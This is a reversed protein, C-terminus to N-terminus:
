QGSSGGSSGPMQITVPSYGGGSSNSLLDKPKGARYREIAAIAPDGEEPGLTRGVVLDHPDAVMLGFDSVTACGFNSGVGNDHAEFPTKTWDPCNPLTVVYREVKVLLRNAAIGHETAPLAKAGIGRQALAHSLTGIRQAALPDGSATQLYVHDDPTVGSSDLFADLRAGEGSELRASGPVFGVPQTLETYDVKLQKPTTVPAVETDDSSSCAALVLGLGACLCLILRQTM